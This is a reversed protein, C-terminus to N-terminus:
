SDCIHLILALCFMFCFFFFFFQDLHQTTNVLERFMLIDGNGTQKEPSSDM